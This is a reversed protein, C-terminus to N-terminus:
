NYTQVGTKKRWTKAARVQQLPTGAEEEEEEEERRRRRGEQGAGVAELADRAEVALDILDRTM